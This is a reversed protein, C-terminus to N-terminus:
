QGGGEVGQCSAGAEVGAGGGGRDASRGGGGARIQGFRQGVALAVHEPQEGPALGVALDAGLQEDRGLGGAHVDGVDEGLEGDGVAGFGGGDGVAFAELRGGGVGGRCVSWVTVVRMLGGPQRRVGRSTAPPCCGSGSRARCSGASRGRRAGSSCSSASSGCGRGTGGRCRSWAAARSWTTPSATSSTGAISRRRVTGCCSRSRGGPPRRRRRRGCRGTRAQWCPTIATSGSVRGPLAPRSWWRARM